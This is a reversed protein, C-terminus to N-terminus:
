SAPVQAEAVEMSTTSDRCRQTLGSSGHHEICWSNMEDLVSDPHHIAIDPGQVVHKAQHPTDSVATQEARGAQRIPM